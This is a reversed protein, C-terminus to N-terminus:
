PQRKYVDILFIGTFYLAAPLIARVLIDAYETDTMEAMLFNDRICMERIESQGRLFFSALISASVCQSLLTAIAAGSIGLDLGFIFIPDLLINLVGGIGLGIVSRNAKGQWRLLNNLTFALCM